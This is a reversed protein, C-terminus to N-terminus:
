HTTGHVDRCGDVYVGMLLVCQMGSATYWVKKKAYREEVPPPGFLGFMKGIALGVLGVGVSVGISPM